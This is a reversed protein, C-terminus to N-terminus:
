FISKILGVAGTAMGLLGGIKAVGEQSSEAELAAMKNGIRSSGLAVAGELRSAAELDEAAVTAPRGSRVSEAAAAALRQLYGGALITRAELSCVEVGCAGALDPETEGFQGLEQAASAIRGIQQYLFQAQDPSLTM